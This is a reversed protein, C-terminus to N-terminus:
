LKNKIKKLAQKYLLYITSIPMNLIKSIEKFKLNLVIHYIIVDKELGELINLARSLLSDKDDNAIVDVEELVEIRKEKNYYNIANNRAIVSIWGIFNTGIKYYSIKEIVKLYTDQMIDEIVDRKKIYPMISLYVAKKTLEYIENFESTNGNLYMLVHKDLENM